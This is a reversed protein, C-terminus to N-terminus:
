HPENGVDKEANQILQPLMLTFVTSGPQSRYTLIGQHERAVQQALALGLGLGQARGSVLPLFVTQGIEEPVGCGDDIVDIRLSMAHVREGLRYGHEIRTRLTIQTADAELANNVLNLVAQTLRACDGLYLPISPDYDRIIQQKGGGAQALQVVRELVSYINLPALPKARAPSLLRDLLSNLREIESSILQILDNEQTDRHHSRRALLQAAGKLGALPNRLEHALGRLAASLADPLSQAIEFDPFIDMPRMELLWGGRDQRSLWGEALKPVEGPLGLVLRHLRLMDREQNRLFREIAHDQKELSSLPRNILRTVSVGLWRALATNAGQIYGSSDAWIMPTVLSEVSPAQM